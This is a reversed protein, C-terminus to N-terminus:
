ILKNKLLLQHSSLAISCRYAKNPGIIDAEFEENETTLEDLLYEYLPSLLIPGYRNVKTEKAGNYYALEVV